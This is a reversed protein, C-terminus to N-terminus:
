TRAARRARVEAIVQPLRDMVGKVRMEDSMADLRELSQEMRLRLSIRHVAELELGDLADVERHVLPRLEEPSTASPTSM